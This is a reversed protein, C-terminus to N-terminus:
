NRAAHKRFGKINYLFVILFLAIMVALLYRRYKKTFRSSEVRVMGQVANSYHYENDDYELIAFVAYKSGNRGSLSKLHFPITTSMGPGVAIAKLPQEIAIDRSSVLACSVMRKVPDSDRIIVEGEGSDSVVIEPIEGSIGGPMSKVYDVYGISLASFPYLNADSYDVTVPLPYRGPRKMAANLTFEETYREGIGLRKKLAGGYRKSAFVISIRTNYAPENGKNVLTVLVKAQDAAATVETTTELTIFGARSIGPVATLLVVVPVFFLIDKLRCNM